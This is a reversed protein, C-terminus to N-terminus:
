EPGRLIRGLNANAGWRFMNYYPQTPGPAPLLDLTKRFMLEALDLNNRELQALGMYYTAYIDLGEQVEPAILKKKTKDTVM